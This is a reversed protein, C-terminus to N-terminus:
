YNKASQPYGRVEGRGWIIERNSQEVLKDFATDDPDVRKQWESSIRPIVQKDPNSIRSTCNFVITISKREEDQTFDADSVFGRYRLWEGDLTSRRQNLAFMWVKVEAYQYDDYRALQSIEGLVGNLTITIENPSLDNSHTISSIEGNIAGKYVRGTTPHTFEGVGEFFSLVEGNRDTVEVAQFFIHPQTTAPQPPAPLEGLITDSLRPLDALLPTFRSEQNDLFHQVAMDDPVNDSPAFDLFVRDILQGDVSFDFIAQAPGFNSFAGFYRADFVDGVSISRTEEGTPSFPDIRLGQQVYVEAFTGRYHPTMTLEVDRTCTISFIDTNVVGTRYVAMLPLPLRGSFYGALGPNPFPGFDAM